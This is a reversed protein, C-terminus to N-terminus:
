TPRGTLRATWAVQAARAALSQADDFHVFEISVQVQRGVGTFPHPQDEEVEMSRITGTAALQGLYNKGLRILNVTDQAVHHAELWSLMDLGDNVIPFTIGTITSIKEGRGTLQYDMGQFTARGPVRVESTRAVSQPSLGFPKLRAKGIGIM